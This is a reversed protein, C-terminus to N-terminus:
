SIECQNLTFMYFNDHPNLLMRIMTEMDQKKVDWQIKVWSCYIYKVCCSVTTNFMWWLLHQQVTYLM